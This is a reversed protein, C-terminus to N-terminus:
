ATTNAAIDALTERLWVNAPDVHSRPHWAASM